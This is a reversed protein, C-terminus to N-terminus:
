AQQSYKRNGEVASGCDEADDEKATGFIRRRLSPVFIPIEKEINRLVNKASFTGPVCYQITARRVWATLGAWRKSPQLCVSTQISSCSLTASSTDRWRNVRLQKGPTGSRLRRSNFSMTVETQAKQSLGSSILAM